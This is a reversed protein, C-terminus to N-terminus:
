LRSNMMVELDKDTTEVLKYGGHSVMLAYDSIELAEKRRTAFLITRPRRKQKLESHKALGRDDVWKRLVTMVNKVTPESLHATPMYMCLVDPEATLARAISLLCKQQLSLASDWDLKCDPDKLYDMVDDDIGLLKCALEAEAVYDGKQLMRVSHRDAALIEVGFTVNEILSKKPFFLPEYDM